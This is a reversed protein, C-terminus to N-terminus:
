LPTRGPRRKVKRERMALTWMQSKKHIMDMSDARLFSASRFVSVHTVVLILLGLPTKLLVTCFKRTYLRRQTHRRRVDRALKLILDTDATSISFM